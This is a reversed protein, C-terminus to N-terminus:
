VFTHGVKKGKEQTIVMKTSYYPANWNTADTPFPEFRNDRAQICIRPRQITSNKLSEAIEFITYGSCKKWIFYFDSRLYLCFPLCFSRLSIYSFFILSIELSHFYSLHSTYFSTPVFPLCTSAKAYM